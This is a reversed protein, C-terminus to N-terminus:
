ITHANCVINARQIKLLSSLVGKNKVLESFATIFKIKSCKSKDYYMLSSIDIKNYGHYLVTNMYILVHAYLPWNDENISMSKCAYALANKIRSKGTITRNDCFKDIDEYISSLKENAIEEIIPLEPFKSQDPSVGFIKSLIERCSPRMDPDDCLMDLIMERTEDPEIDNCLEVYEIEHEDDLLVDITEPDYIITLTVGLSFIDRAENYITDKSRYLSTTVEDTKKDGSFRLTEFDIIASKKERRNIVFNDPKVDNNCIGVDHMACLTQVISKVIRDKNINSVDYDKVYHFIDIDYRDMEIIQRYYDIKRYRILGPIMPEVLSLVKYWLIDTLFTETDDFKKVYRAM